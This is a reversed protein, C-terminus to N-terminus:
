LSSPRDSSPIAQSIQYGVQWPPLESSQSHLNRAPHHSEATLKFLSTKLMRPPHSPHLQAQSCIAWHLHLDRGM